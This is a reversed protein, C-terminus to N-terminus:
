GVTFMAAGRTELSVDMGRSGWWKEKGDRQIDWEKVGQGSATRALREGALCGTCKRLSVRGAWARPYTIYLSGESSIHNGQGMSLAGQELDLDLDLEQGLPLVVVPELVCVLQCGERSLSTVSPFRPFGGGAVVLPVLVANISGSTSGLRADASFPITGTISGTTTQIDANYSRSPLRDMDMDMDTNMNMTNMCGTASAATRFDVRVDGGRSSSIKLRAPRDRGFPSAHQPVVVVHIDGTTTSLSLLDFLPFTGRIPTEDHHDITIQRHRHHFPNHHKDDQQQQQQQEPPNSTIHGDPSPRQSDEDELDSLNHHGSLALEDEDESDTEYVSSTPTYLRTRTFSIEDSDKDRISSDEHADWTQYQDIITM